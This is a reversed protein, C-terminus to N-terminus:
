IPIFIYMYSTSRMGLDFIACGQNWNNPFLLPLSLKLKWHADSERRQFSFAPNSFDKAQDLTIERISKPFM